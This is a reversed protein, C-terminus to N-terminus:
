ICTDSQLKYGKDHAFTLTNLIKQTDHKGDLLLRVCALILDFRLDINSFWTVDCEQILESTLSLCTEARHFVDRKVLVSLDSMVLTLPPETLNEIVTIRAIIQALLKVASKAVFM